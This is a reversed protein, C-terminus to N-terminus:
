KDILWDILWNQKDVTHYYFKSNLTKCNKTVATRDSYILQNIEQKFEIARLAIDTVLLKHFVTSRSHGDPLIRTRYCHCERVPNISVTFSFMIADHLTVLTHISFVTSPAHHYLKAPYKNCQWQFLHRHQHFNVTIQWRDTHQAIRTQIRQCGHNNFYDRRFQQSMFIEFIPVQTPNKMM